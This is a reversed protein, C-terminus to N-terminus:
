LVATADVCLRECESGHDALFCRQRALSINRSQGQHGCDDHIGKLIVSIMSDSQHRKVRSLQDRSARYLIGNHVILKEWNKLYRVVIMSENARERRSPRHRREVYYLVKSLIRDALQKERLEQESYAPLMDEGVSMIQPLHDVVSMARTRAGLDWEVHSHM